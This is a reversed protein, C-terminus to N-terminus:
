GSDALGTAAALAGRLRAIATTGRERAARVDGVVVLSVVVVPSVAEFYVKLKPETGSPRLTVRLDDGLRMIIANTPPLDHGSRLDDVQTVPRGDLQDPPAARLQNMIGAIRAPGDPGDVTISWQDSVHAGHEIALDDLRDFVTRGEAKLGAVLEAFLLAATIGDKDRVMSGACYGLAEEYGFVFRWDPHSDGIRVIWKFGTLTEAYHVGAAAAMRRLLSSSVITTVVLRDDGATHRLVHDALLVGIEDGRLITWGPGERSPVAVGLRDADPDNALVLDADRDTAQMVALDLAGPEEPNPFAVTPFDPDPAAQADVVTVRRFGSDALLRLAVSGGVGHMPTYVIGIDRAGPEFSQEAAEALYQDVIDDGLTTILPDDSAAVGPVPVPVPVSSTVLDIQASIQADTPPVIQAGDGLYVKYGNYEPPNHSATVMVGAAAHLRRVAYALLPTPLARPLLLAPIGAGALVSATDRAFDESRHRADYGIVVGSGTSGHQHLYGALGAAAKRVLVRNMRNPGAGLRGRLGATGFELRAGFREELGPWDSTALLNELERRTEPDPDEALWSRAQGLLEEDTVTASATM